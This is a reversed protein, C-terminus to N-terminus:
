GKLSFSANARIDRSSSGILVEFEGPEAIWQKLDPDYFSLDEKGLALCVTTTEGPQLRVKKFGKLEKPPRALSSKVDHVYMQVIEKGEREGTNRVDICVELRDGMKLDASSIRLNSYEFTTYSLGYGFPFLPEIKKADYYRYGVFIGEGYLVKGNEGPYNIYAPNDEIRKPFTDPLKGSPNVKGLLVNAIANGCEQGPFWAEVVGAVRDIWSDMSVPSGNNLVVVTNRNANAITKILEVQDGPLEMDERDFGESEYEETLGVFVLAVDSCAAIDAARAMSDGPVPFECGLRILRIPSQQHPNKCYEVIISYSKGAEMSIEGLREGRTVLKGAPLEDTWKEVVPKNDIYVRGLGNTLLSFKYNGSEPARFLGTWRISFEDRDVNLGPISQGTAFGWALTFEKDLRTVVPEGSLDNNSFYEGTLGQGEEGGGPILYKPDLPPTLRNNRCGLEYSMKVSDGCQRTLGELPTVVYYPRVQSSGRGQIRAEGANPGIVAISKVKKKDLPLVSNENKLLVIAEDAVERALKQHEPTNSSADSDTKEENSAGSKFVIGLIRRVKDDILEQSVEGKNVASVLAEGFFRAPGPMELDLGANAPPVTSHVAGWDSVVFGEFGWEGKLIDTLLYKNESAYTGNVRNYSCMVTWPQAELVAARFSPLYIERIAREGAESSITFRQFESNNLAFHKISTGINQSQVGNIHAVALRASLYPDESFSEFNRGGLPSRHINVCPGLLIACGKARAEEGLAVGVRTILETDWTAAMAVATPFCTSPLTQYPEDAQVFRTGHPGDSVRLAPIGLQEIGRTHWNDTGALMSVKEELTMRSLLNGIRRELADEQLGQM